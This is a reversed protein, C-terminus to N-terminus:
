ALAVLPLLASPRERPQRRKWAITLAVATSVLAVTTVLFDDRHLLHYRSVVTSLIIMSILWLMPLIRSLSGLQVKQRTTLGLPSTHPASSLSSEHEMRSKYLM